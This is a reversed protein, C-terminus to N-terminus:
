EIPRRIQGSGDVICGLALAPNPNGGGWGCCYRVCKEPAVYAAKLKKRYEPMMTEAGGMVTEEPIHYLKTVENLYPNKGPLFHPVTGQGDLRAVEAEPSCPAPVPRIDTHPDLEWVRSLVYPETLYVPDNVFQTVTLFDGHRMFHATMTAQDSNPTGNRRIYGAKFHTTYTTLVDGEWEGTTFGAYTHPAYDPPHPRGDMWITIIARDILAGIKWAVTKGTVPEYEAWMKIPFPGIVLYPPTYYLCQREPLSLISAQYKLAKARGEENIPLGSYDVPEPGPGREQWDQHHRAAWNGSLDVQALAPVAATAVLFLLPILKKM